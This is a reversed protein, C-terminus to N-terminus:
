TIPLVKVATEELNLRNYHSLLSELFELHFHMSETYGVLDCDGSDMLQNIIINTLNSQYVLDYCGSEIVIGKSYIVYEGTIENVLIRLEDNLIEIESVEDSNKISNISISSGNCLNARITGTFEIYGKRKSQIVTGDVKEASIYEINAGSLYAVLDIYHISNCALGCWEGAKYNFYVPKNINIYDNKIKKYFSYTRLPCNVFAKVNKLKIISEAKRYSEVDQFLFKELILYKVEFLNLSAELISYRVAAGTALILYDINSENVCNLDKYYYVKHDAGWDVQNAREESISLSVESNDVVYINFKISLKLCAQLHRSGLQGAGVILLNM